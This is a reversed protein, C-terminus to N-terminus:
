LKCVWKRQVYALARRASDLTVTYSSIQRFLVKSLRCYQGNNLIQVLATVISNTDMAQGATVFGAVAGPGNGSSVAAVIGYKDISSALLLREASVASVFLVTTLVYVIKM